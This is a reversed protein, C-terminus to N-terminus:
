ELNTTNENFNIKPNRKYKYKTNIIKNNSNLIKLINLM